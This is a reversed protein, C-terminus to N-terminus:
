AVNLAESYRYLRTLPMSLIEREPWHTRAALLAVCAIYEKRHRM